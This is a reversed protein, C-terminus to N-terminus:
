EDGKNIDLVQNIKHVGDLADFAYLDAGIEDAFDQSTVAGGIITKGQYGKEKLLRVVRGMEDMTTTMLASLGVFDVGYELAKQAILQSEVNAGLDIVEFGYNGFITRVINKGIDHIDDKVTALLISAKFKTTRGQLEKKLYEFGEEVTEASRLLQPLFYTGDEYLDGVRQIGPILAEDIVEQPEKEKLVEKIKEIIKERKGNVILEKIEEIIGPANKDTKATKDSKDAKATKNKQKKRNKKRDPIKKERGKEGGYYDIFEQGGEDRSTLLSAARLLHYINEDFPDLIPLDLGAALAMVLFTQNILERAPLGHSINSIGLTTKVGTEEKLKQLTKVTLMVEKQRAGATLALADIVIDGRGLGYERAREIIRRTIYLRGEVSDPIGKEDLTLGIVAAGYRKALPFIRAMSSEEGTVSNILARGTYERLGAELVATKSCDLVLPVDVELQLERILSKIIKVQAIGSIGINLDLLSAGANVQERALQRLYSWDEDKLAKKLDDRGTPNLKEGIIYVPSKKGIELFRSSSSLYLAEEAKVGKEGEPNQNVRIPNAREIVKKIEPIYDPTTGCCGGIIRVNYNFLGEIERVFEQPGEPFVTKGERSVPLGANPFVSLPRATVAAMRAIVPVAERFGAVCNVGIVDVGMKDLVIAATEPTNGMLSRERENFTMQAILPIKYGKAALVAARIEKLDSMTEIIIADVGAEVLVSIQQKFVEEATEVGLEGHPEMLKGTPGVSGAVFSEKCARRAIEVARKNIEEVRDELGSAKLKIYNAGFTNTEILRAGAAVYERHIRYILEPRDLLLREPVESADEAYRQIMTGMAGDATIIGKKISELLRSEM